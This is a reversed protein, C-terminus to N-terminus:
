QKIPRFFITFEDYQGSSTTVQLTVAAGLRVQSVRVTFSTLGVAGRLEAECNAPAIQVQALTEGDLWNTFDPEYDLIADEDISITMGLLWEREDGM